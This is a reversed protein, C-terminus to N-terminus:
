DLWVYEVFKDFYEKFKLFDADIIYHINLCLQLKNNLTFIIITPPIILYGFWRLHGREKHLLLEEGQEKLTWYPGLLSPQAVHWEHM